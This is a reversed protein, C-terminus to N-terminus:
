LRWDSNRWNIIMGRKLFPFNKSIHLPTGHKKILIKRYWSNSMDFHVGPVFQMIIQYTSGNEYCFGHRRGYGCQSCNRNFPIEYLTRYICFSCVGAALKDMGVIHINNYITKLVKKAIGENWRSIEMADHENHYILRSVGTLKEIKVSKIRQLEILINTTITM